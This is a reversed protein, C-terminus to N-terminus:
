ADAAETIDYLDPNLMVFAARIDEDNALLWSQGARTVTLTIAEIDDLSQSMDTRELINELILTQIATWTDDAPMYPFSDILEGITWDEYVDEALLHLIDIETTSLKVDAINILCLDM